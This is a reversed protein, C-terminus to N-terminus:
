GLDGRERLARIDDAARFTILFFELIMRYIAMVILIFLPDGFLLTL